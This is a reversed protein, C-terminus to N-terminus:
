YYVFDNQEVDTARNQLFSKVKSKFQCKSNANRIVAPLRNWVKVAVFSFNFRSCKTVRPLVYNVDTNRTSHMPQSTVRQFMNQLYMPATGQKVSYMHNLMIQHVRDSTNVIGIQNLESQGVHSRPDLNLIFRVM